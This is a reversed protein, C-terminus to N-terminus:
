QEVSSHIATNRLERLANILEARQAAKTLVAYAGAKLVMQEQGPVEGATLVLIPTDPLFRRLTKLIELEELGPNGLALLIIDPKCSLLIADWKVTATVKALDSVSNAPEAVMFDAEEAIAACLAEHMMPHKEIVLVTAPIPDMM